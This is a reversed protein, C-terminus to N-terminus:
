RTSPAAGAAPAVPEGAARWAQFGGVVDTARVGFKCIVAAALSSQYGEDCILIVQRGARLGPLAHASRPDLRWELANRAIRKAGPIAGDRGIQSESRIDVLLTGRRQARAADGPALRVLSARAEELLEGVTITAQRTGTQPGTL